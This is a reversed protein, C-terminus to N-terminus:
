EEEAKEIQERLKDYAQTVTDAEKSRAIDYLSNISYLNLFEEPLHKLYESKEMTSSFEARLSNRKDNIAELEKILEEDKFKIEDPNKFKALLIFGVKEQISNKRMSSINSVILFGLLVVAFVIAIFKIDLYVVFALLITIVLIELLFGYSKARLKLSNERYNAIEHELAAQMLDYRTINLLNEEQDLEKVESKVMAFFRRPDNELTNIEKDKSNKVNDNM